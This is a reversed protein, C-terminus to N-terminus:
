RMLLPLFFDVTATTSAKHILVETEAELSNRSNSARVVVVYRGETTYAHTTSEGSGTDGDGFDWEYRVGSGADITATFNITEGVVNPGDHSVVLNAIPVGSVPEDMVTVVTTMSLSNVRNSATVTATYTGSEAYTHTVFAGSAVQDDGLEWTFEVNDGSAVEAMLTVIDGKFVPSDNIALLNTVPKSGSHAPKVVVQTSAKMSSVGNQATVEVSYTGIAQYVHSVTASTGTHGDGFDWTYTVNRGADITAVFHITDGLNTPGDNSAVLNTISGDEDLLTLAPNASDASQARMKSVYVHSAKTLQGFEEPKQSALARDAM